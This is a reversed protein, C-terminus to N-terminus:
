IKKVRASTSLSHDAELGPRKIESSLAGPIWQILPQTSGLAPGFSVSFLVNNVM